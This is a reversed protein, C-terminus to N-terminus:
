AQPDSGGEGESESGPGQEYPLSVKDKSTTLGEAAHMMLVNRMQDTFGNPYGRYHDVVWQPLRLSVHADNTGYVGRVKTM